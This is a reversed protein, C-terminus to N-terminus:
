DIKFKKLLIYLSYKKQNRNKQKQIKALVTFIKILKTAIM